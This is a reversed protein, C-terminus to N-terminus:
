KPISNIAYRNLEDMSFKIRGSRYLMNSDLYGMFWYLGEDYNYIAYYDCRHLKSIKLYGYPKISKADVKSGSQTFDYGNDEKHGFRVMEPDLDNLYCHLFECLKGIEIHRRKEEFTRNNDKYSNIYDPDALWEDLKKSYYPNM